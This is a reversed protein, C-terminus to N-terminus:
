IVKECYLPWFNIEIQKIFTERRTGDADQMLWMADHKNLTM